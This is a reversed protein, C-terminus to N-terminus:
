FKSEWSDSEPREFPPLEGTNGSLEIENLNLRSVHRAIFPVDGGITGSIGSFRLDALPTVANGELQFPRRARVRFNRFTLRELGRLRIAGECLIVVPAGESVIDFNEFLLDSM